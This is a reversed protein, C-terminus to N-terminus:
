RRREWEVLTMALAASIMSLVVMLNLSPWFFPLALATAFFVVALGKSIARWTAAISREEAAAPTAPTTAATKGLAARLRAIEARRALDVLEMIAEALESADVEYAHFRAGEDEDILAEIREATLWVYGDTAELQADDCLVAPKDCHRCKAPELEEHERRIAEVDV